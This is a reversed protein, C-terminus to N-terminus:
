KIVPYYDSLLKLILTHLENIMYASDDNKNFNLIVNIAFIVSDERFVLKGQNVKKKSCTGM